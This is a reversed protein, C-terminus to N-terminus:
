SAILHTAQWPQRLTDSPLDGFHSMWGPQDSQLRLCCNVWAGPWHSGGLVGTAEQAAMEHRQSPILVSFHASNGGGWKLFEIKPAQEKAQCLTQEIPVAGYGPGLGRPPESPSGGTFPDLWLELAQSHGRAWGM